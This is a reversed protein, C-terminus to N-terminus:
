HTCLLSIQKSSDKFKVQRKGRVKLLWFQRKGVIYKPLQRKGPEGCSLVPGSLLLSVSSYGSGPCPSLFASCGAPIFVPFYHVIPQLAQVKPVQPPFQYLFILLYISILFILCNWIFDISTSVTQNVFLTSFSLLSIPFGRSPPPPYFLNASFHLMKNRCSRVFNM